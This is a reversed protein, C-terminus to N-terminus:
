ESERSEAREDRDARGAGIGGGMRRGVIWTLAALGVADVVFISRMSRSGILGAVVPSVALGVLYATTLYGFAVNRQRASVAHGAVTYITTTAVGIGFGFPVALGLLAGAAPGAAFGAAGVTAVAAGTAVVWAPSWRDLCWGTIQNGFAAAGATVTFILGSLFPVRAAGTGIERLYLPLVPGISRDVLQLGFVLGLYLVFHPVRRLEAFTPSAAAAARHARPLGAERYGFVVLLFAGFYCAAAVLFAERLGVAAALGGGVIPGIAPGLRQATQVWGIATALHEPPASDAAMTMALTGYGAFLGLVARLALVQWPQRVAALLSMVVVFSALSRVVMLKRGYRDAIRAWLPAMAATIAPTVGLSVGSWIAIASTDHVGLQEFYLPLFPMVLTFAAFGIFTAVTVAAQNRRWDAAAV